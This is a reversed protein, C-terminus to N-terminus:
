LCPSEFGVKYLFLLGEATIFGVLTSVGHKTKSFGSVARVGDVPEGVILEVQEDERGGGPFKRSLNLNRSLVHM